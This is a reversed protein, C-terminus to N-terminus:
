GDGLNLIDEQLMPEKIENWIFDLAGNLIDMGIGKQFDREIIIEYRTGDLKDYLHFKKTVSRSQTFQPLKIGTVEVKKKTTFKEDKTDWTVKIKRHTEGINVRTHVGSLSQTSGNDVLALFIKAREFRRTSTIICATGSRKYWWKEQDRWASRRGNPKIQAYKIYSFDSWSRLPNADGGGNYSFDQEYKLM